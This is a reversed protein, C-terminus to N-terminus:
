ETSQQLIYWEENRITLEIKSKSGREREDEPVISRLVFDASTMDRSYACGQCFGENLMM